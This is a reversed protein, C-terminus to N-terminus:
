QKSVEHVRIKNDAWGSYLFNGNKSWAISLCAIKKEEILKKESKSSKDDSDNDSEEDDEGLNIHVKCLIEDNVLDWLLIGDDTAAAIWYKVKSFLVQNIPASHSTNKLFLGENVNWLIINGDKGGSALYCSKQAFALSNIANTHGVFTNQLTMSHSDWVKITGDWSGTALVPNKTDPSFRISSVWDNHQDEEVTFKCEGKTNWIKINKDRGGSAIQRNDASFSCSLVDSDHDVFTEVTVGKVLDWLRLTKDWSASLCYRSDASLALDQVFHSHGSYVRKPIGWEKDDDTAKKETVEWTIIKNDRGGSILFETENGAEDKASGVQITQVWGSHGENLCTLPRIGLYPIAM